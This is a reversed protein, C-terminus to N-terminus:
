AKLASVLSPTIYTEILAAAFILFFVLILKRKLNQKWLGIIIRNTLSWAKKTDESIM